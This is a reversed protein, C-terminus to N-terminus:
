LLNTGKNDKIRLILHFVVYSSMWKSIPPLGSHDYVFKNDKNLIKLQNLKKANCTIFALNQSKNIEIKVLFNPCPIQSGHKLM